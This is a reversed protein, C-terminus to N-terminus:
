PKTAFISGSVLNMFKEYKTIKFCRTKGQVKFLMKMLTYNQADPFHYSNCINKQECMLVLPVWLTVCV